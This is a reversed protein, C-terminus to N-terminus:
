DSGAEITGTISGSGTSPLSRGSCTELATTLAAKEDQDVSLSYAAKVQVMRQALFCRGEVTIETGQCVGSGIRGSWEAMDRSGKSRNVCDRTAILNEADNGFGMRRATDWAWAGSEFAEQAAVIHDVDCTSPDFSIGTYPDTGANDCLYRRDHEFEARVYGTGEYEAEVTLGNLVGIAASEAPPDISSTDDTGGTSPTDDPQQFCGGPVLQTDVDFRCRYVNLLAEQSQILTDRVEIDQQTPNAPAPGPSVQDPDPCGGPVVDTDVGFLCRYTNLLNEQNAILQDRVEVDAVSQASAAPAVLASPLLLMAVLAAIAAMARTFRSRHEVPSAM